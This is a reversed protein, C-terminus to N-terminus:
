GPSDTDREYTEEELDSNSEDCQEQDDLRRLSARPAHIYDHMRGVGHSSSGGRGFGRRGKVVTTWGESSSDSDPLSHVKAQADAKEEKRTPSKDSTEVPESSGLKSSKTTGIAKPVTGSPRNDVKGAGSSTDDRTDSFHSM